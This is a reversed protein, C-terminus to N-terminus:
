ADRWQPKRKEVFATAGEQAVPHMMNHAMTQAAMQYAAAMPAERQQYVLAKGMALAVKPKSLLTSILTEVAADLAEPECVQNVLGRVRAEAASIFDGTMLMEMAAKTGVNRTLAVSPTSCFLGIDIGNVGFTAQDSAIALDTQAVLQCGAATAIAHVQAIVPVPLLMLGLMMKSCKAFLDQHAKIDVEKQMAKLDHGACFAKGRAAIVVVRASEDAAVRQSALLLEDLMDDSLVNFRAPDNLTWYHVGRDDRQHELLSHSLIQM